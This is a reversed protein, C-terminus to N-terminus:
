LMTPLALREAPSLLAALRQKAGSLEKVPIIAWIGGVPRDSM